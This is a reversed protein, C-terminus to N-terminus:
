DDEERYREHCGKCANGAEKFAKTITARDGGAAAQALAATADAAEQAAAAVQDPEEWILSLAASGQSGDPFLTGILTATQALAEAHVLLDNPRDVRNTFVMALAAFHDSMAAMVSHRYKVENNDTDHDHDDDALVNSTLLAVTTIALAFITCFRNRM